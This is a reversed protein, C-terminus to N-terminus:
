SALISEIQVLDSRDLVKYTEPDLGNSALLNEFAKRNTFTIFFGQAKEDTLEQIKDLDQKQDAINDGLMGGCKSQICHGRKNNCGATDVSGSTWSGIEVQIEMASNPYLKRCIHYAFVEGVAGRLHDIDNSPSSYLNDLEQLIQLARVDTSYFKRFTRLQTLNRFKEQGYKHLSKTAVGGTICLLQFVHYRYEKGKNDTLLKCLDDVQRQYRERSNPLVPRITFVM